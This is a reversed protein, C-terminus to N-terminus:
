GRTFRVGRTNLFWIARWRAATWLPGRTALRVRAYYAALAPDEIRNEDTAVSQQYGPPVERIFHGVRWRGARAPMRARLPDALAYKDIVHVHPGAYFGRMGVAGWVEVQGVLSAHGTDGQDRARAVAAEAVRRMRTPRAMIGKRAPRAGPHNQRRLGSAQFYYRREDIIGYRGRTNGRSTGFDAGTVYAPTPTVVGGLLPLGMALLWRSWVPPPSLGEDLHLALSMVLPLTLFRGAMFDGGVWVIYVLHCPLGWWLSLHRRSGPRLPRLPLLLGCLLTAATVPDFRLADYLYRVGQLMLETRAVGSGLKAYATNPLPTGYYALSFLAWSVLPLTALAVPRWVSRLGEVGARQRLLLGVYGPALAAAADLRTLMALALVLTALPLTSRDQPRRVLVLMALFWLHMLPNELGSTAFDVWARSSALVGLVLGAGLATSALSRSMWWAAWLSMFAGLALCLYYPTAGLAVGAALLGMWLPHTFSQVREAVNWRLGYGGLLNDVTRLTIYADDSVWATRYLVTAVLACGLMAVWRQGRTRGDLGGLQRVAGGAAPAPAHPSHLPPTMPGSCARGRRGLVTWLGGAGTVPEGKSELVAPKRGRRGQGWPKSLGM